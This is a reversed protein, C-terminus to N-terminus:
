DVFLHHGFNQAINKQISREIIDLSQLPVNPLVTKCVASGLKTTAVTSAFGTSEDENTLNM